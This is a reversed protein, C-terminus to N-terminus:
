QNEHKSPSGDNDTKLPLLSQAKKRTEEDTLQNSDEVIIELAVVNLNQNFLKKANKIREVKGEESYNEDIIDILDPISWNQLKEYYKVFFKRGIEELLRTAADYRKQRAANKAKIENEEWTAQRAEELAIAEKVMAERYAEEGGYQKIKNEYKFNSREVLLILFGIFASIGGISTRGLASAMQLFENNGLLIEIFGYGVVLAVYGLFWMSATSLPRILTTLNNHVNVAIKVDSKSPLSFFCAVAVLAKIVACGVLDYPRVYVNKVVNDFALCVQIITFVLNIVRMILNFLFVGRLFKIRRLIAKEDM